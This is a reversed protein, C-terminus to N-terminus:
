GSELLLANAPRKQTRLRSTRRRRTPSVGSEGRASRRVNWPFGGTQLGIRTRGFGLGRRARLLDLTRRSRGNAPQEQLHCTTACSRRGARQSRDRDRPRSDSKLGSLTIGWGGCRASRVSSSRGCWGGCASSWSYFAWRTRWAPSPKPPTPSASSPQFLSSSASSRGPGACPCTWGRWRSTRSGLALFMLGVLVGVTTVSAQDFQLIVLAVGVWAVGAILLVWWYGTVRRASERLSPIASAGFQPTATHESM